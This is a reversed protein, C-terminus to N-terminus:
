GEDGDEVESEGPGAEDDGVDDGSEHPGPIKSTGDVATGSLLGEDPDFDIKDRDIYEQGDDERKEELRQKHEGDLNTSEDAGTEANPETSPETDTRDNNV